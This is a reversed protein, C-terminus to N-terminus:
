PVETIKLVLRDVKDAPRTPPHFKTSLVHNPDDDAFLGADAFGDIAAKAPGAHAEVDALRGRSQEPYVDITCRDLMLPGCMEHAIWRADHRWQKVLAARWAWHRRREANVTWLTGPIPVTWSRPYSFSGV